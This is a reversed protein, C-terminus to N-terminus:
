LSKDIDSFTYQFLCRIYHAIYGNVSRPLSTVLNYKDKLSSFASEIIKRKDMLRNQQLTSIRNMNKRTKALIVSNYKSALEQYDKSLYASDAIYTRNIHRKIFVPLITGDFVKGTTIYFDTIEGTLTTLLHLKIGYFWNHLPHYSKTAYESMVVHRKERKIHCVPIPTSDIILYESLRSKMILRLLDILFGCSYNMSRVFNHYLPLNFINSFNDKLIKYLGYLSKQNYRSQIWNITAIDATNLKAPRGTKRREEKLYLKFYRRVQLVKDIIKNDRRTPKNHEHM